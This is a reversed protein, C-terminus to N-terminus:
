SRGGVCLGVAPRGGLIASAFREGLTVFAPSSYHSGDPLSLDDAGIIRVGPVTTLITAQQARVTATHDQSCDTHLRNITIPVGPFTTRFTSAFVAFNAAYAAAHAANAADAEGQIWILEAIEGGLSTEATTCYDVFQTFLKDGTSPYTGGVAKWHVGLSTSGIAMKCIAHEYGARYLKRGLSLEVGFTGNGSHIYDLDEPGVDFDWTFANLGNPADEVRYMCQVSAYASAYGLASPVSPLSARGAANSQGAIVVIPLPM